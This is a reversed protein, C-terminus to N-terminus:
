RYFSKVFKNNINNKIYVDMRVAAISCVTGIFAGVLVQEVFHQALYIRTWAAFAAVLFFLFKKTNSGAFFALVGYIAFATTSHGSPFGNCCKLKEGLATHFPKIEVYFADPRASSIFHKLPEVIAVCLAFALVVPVTVRRQLIFVLVIVVIAFKGDGLYTGYKMMKDLFSFYIGNAYLFGESKGMFLLISALLLM